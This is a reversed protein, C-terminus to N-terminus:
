VLNRLAGEAFNQGEGRSILQCRVIGGIKFQRLGQVLANLVTTGRGYLDSDEIRLRLLPAVPPAHSRMCACSGIGEM